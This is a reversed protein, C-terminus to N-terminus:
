RAIEVYRSYHNQAAVTITATPGNRHKAVILDAEGARPSEKDYADERHILIALDANDELAGSDRLDSLLPKKDVRQEPGRNLQSTAVVTVGLEKALLKLCRSIESVEEYRSAFPRTGYTLTHLGDIVILRVDRQAVLRRCQPRLDVFTGYAGDQIYLPAASIDPMKRALRTWDDETMNGSRMHHLAVRSEASCVRMAIEHRNSELTFLAAPLGHTISASRLFDLALTTKGMAPRGAIVVLHGPHLGGGTLADLDDFGTPVGPNAGATSALAELQDLTGDLVEAIALAPPIGAHRTTAAFIEAQAEDAIRDLNETTADSVMGEIHVAAAQTRRVVSLKQIRQADRRWSHKGKSTSELLSHLYDAGGASELQQETLLATLASIDGRENRAYLALLSTYILDHAPRYFDSGHLIEVVDAVVAPSLLMARLVNKEASIDHLSQGDDAM